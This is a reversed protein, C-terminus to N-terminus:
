FLEYLDAYYAAKSGDWRSVGYAETFMKVARAGFHDSIEAALIALDLYRDARGAHGCDIFGVAGDASIIINSLTLDGHAIVLDEQPPNAMLRALLDSPRVRRNRSAFHSADVDGQAVARQAREIRVALGEDFPCDAAALAHWRALAHGILPLVRSAPWDSHDAPKGPLAETQIAVIRSDDETRLIPAVRIGREALWTTRAIEQRLGQLVTDDDAFKLFSAPTTRLRFVDAGSMGSTIPSAEVSALEARWAAPLKKLIRNPLVSM